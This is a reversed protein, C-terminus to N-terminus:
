SKYIPILVQLRHLAEELQKKEGVRLTQWGVILLGVRMVGTGEMGVKWGGGDGRRVEQGAESQKLTMFQAQLRILKQSLESARKDAKEEAKALIEKERASVAM